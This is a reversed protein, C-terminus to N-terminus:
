ELILASTANSTRMMHELEQIKEHLVNIDIRELQDELWESKQKMKEFERKIEELDSNKLKDEVNRVNGLQNKISVIETQLEKISSSNSDMGEKLLDGMENFKDYMFDELGKVQSMTINGKAPAPAASSLNSITSEQQDIRNKIMDLESIKSELNQIREAAGRILEAYRQIDEMGEPIRVQRMSSIKTNLINISQELQNVKSDIASIEKTATYGPSTTGLSKKKLNDIDEVIKDIKKFKDLKQTISSIDRISQETEPTIKSSTLKINHIDNNLNIIDLKNVTQTDKIEEIQDKLVKLMEETTKDGEM